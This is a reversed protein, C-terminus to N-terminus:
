TRTQVTTSPGFMVGPDLKSVTVRMKGAATRESRDVRDIAIRMDQGADKLKAVLWREQDAGFAANTVLLVQLAGLREQVIQYEVV